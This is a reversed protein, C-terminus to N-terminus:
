FRGGVRNQGRQRLTEAHEKAYARAAGIFSSSNRWLSRDDEGSFFESDLAELDETLKESKGDQYLKMAHDACGEADSPFGHSDLVDQLRDLAESLLTPPLAKAAGRSRQIVDFNENDVLTEFGNGSMGYFEAIGRLVIEEPYLTTDLDDWPEPLQNRIENLFDNSKLIEDIDYAINSKTVKEADRKAQAEIRLAEQRKLRNCTGCLGSNYDATVQLIETGCKTCNTKPDPM